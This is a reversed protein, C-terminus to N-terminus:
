SASAKKENWAKAATAFSHRYTFEGVHGVRKSLDHDIFIPIEAEELLSCFFWDEGEYEGGAAGDTRFRMNFWPPGKIKKVTEMEILCVGFGVRWAEQLGSSADTTFLPTGKVRNLPDPDNPDPRLSATTGGELAKRSYNVAVMPKGHSLLQHLTGKPFSMDTDLFLLHTFEGELASRMIIHRNNSLLSSKTVQPVVMQAKPGLKPNPRPFEVQHCFLLMDTLSMAFEHYWRDHTPIGVLVRIDPKPPEAGIIPVNFDEIKPKRDM